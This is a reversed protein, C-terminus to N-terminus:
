PNYRPYKASYEINWHTLRRAEAWAAKALDDRHPIGKVGSLLNQSKKLGTLFANVKEAVDEINDRSISNSVLPVDEFDRDCRPPDPYDDHGRMAAAARTASQLTPCHLMHCVDSGWPEDVLLLWATFSWHYTPTADHHLWDYPARIGNEDPVVEVIVDPANLANRYWRVHFRRRGESAMSAMITEGSMEPFGSIGKAASIVDM